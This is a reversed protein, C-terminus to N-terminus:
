WHWVARAIGAGTQPVGLLDDETIKGICIHIDELSLGRGELYTAFLEDAYQIVGKEWTTRAGVSHIACYVDGISRQM